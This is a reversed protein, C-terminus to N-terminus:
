RYGKQQPTIFIVRGETKLLPLYEELLAIVQAEEMHEAVHALLITDFLGPHYYGSHKFQENTFCQLGKGKAIEVSLPNHDVGIGNGDLHLLNRGTGCGVDLVYAPKLSRIHWRYSAQVNLL